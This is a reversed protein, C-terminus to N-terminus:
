RVIWLQLDDDFAEWAFPIVILDHKNRNLAVLFFLCEYSTLTHAGQM